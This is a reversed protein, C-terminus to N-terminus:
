KVSPPPFNCWEKGFAPQIPGWLYASLYTFTTSELSWFWGAQVTCQIFLGIIRQLPFRRLNWKKKRELFRSNGFMMHSASATTQQSPEEEGLLLQPQWNGPGRRKETQRGRPLLLLCLLPWGSFGLNRLGNALAATVGEHRLSPGRWTKSYKRREQCPSCHGGHCCRLRHETCCTTSM